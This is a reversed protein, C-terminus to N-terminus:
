NDTRKPCSICDLSSKHHQRWILSQMKQLLEDYLTTSMSDVVPSGLPRYLNYRGRKTEGDATRYLILDSRGLDPEKKKKM